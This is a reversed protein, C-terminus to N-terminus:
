SGFWYSFKVMVVDRSPAEFSERVDRHLRFDGIPLEDERSENWVFYLASGPRFEWRLVGNARISRFNFDPDGFSFARAPGRGDPDVTYEDNAADYGLADYHNFALSRPRAVEKFDHYDGTAIYPQLYFQLSLRSTFTWDVRTALDLVKQDIAAFVYRAGYTATATADSQTTVYQQPLRSTRYSPTVSVSLRPTPRYTASLAVVNDSGGGQYQLLETWADFSLPKRTDSGIQFGSWQRRPKRIAPGGRTARDDITSLEVGGWAYGRWYNTLTTNSDYWLGNEIVDGGFNMHQFKGIWFNRRRTYKRLDPDVYLLVAHTTIIDTRPLFGVDNVEYGPSYAEAQLNYQWHGAHKAFLASGGFGDLATRSADLTLYDADPRQYYRASSRQTRLIAAPSGEVRTGSASWQLVHTNDGFVRYGDASASYAASRLLPDLRDDLSRNVSTIRLGAGAKTGFDKATRAALYNTLPEVSEERPGSGFDVRGKENETVADLLALTWGSATKGTVKAAGLITTQDPADAAGLFATGQPARGIRRSYFLVPQDFNFSFVHNSVIDPEFLSAGEVFFPRKEPFFLEYASLNVRAPDVEVQGFDPNITGTLTLNSTLAYKVDLGASGTTDTRDGIARADSDLRASTYPLLELGRRPKIGDIGTLLAFRSVFGADRKPIYVLRSLEGRRSIARGLNIGWTHSARDPFRLQSYPIALEAIWGDSVIKTASSWVADWNADSLADSSLAADYQVNAPNVQFTAGSRHDLHPDLYVRFWDSEITTDRRGLLSTVPHSDHLYAGFYIADDDYVVKVVTKESEPKGEEPDRQIFGTIEPANAWTPDSLDGDIIPPKSARVARYTQPPTQALVSSSLLLLLAVFRM